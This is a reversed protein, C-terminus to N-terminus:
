AFNVVPDNVGDDLIGDQDDYVYYVRDIGTGKEMLKKSGRQLNTFNVTYTDFKQESGVGSYDQLLMFGTYQTPTESNFNYTNNTINFTATSNKNNSLRIPNNNPDIDNFVNDEINIVAGNEVNYFSIANNGLAGNFTNGSLTVNNVNPDSGISFEIANYINKNGANFTNNELVIDGSTKLSLGTRTTTNEVSSNKLTFPKTGTVKIAPTTDSSSTGSYSIKANDVVLEANSTTIPAAITAGNANITMDKDISLPTSVNETGAFTLTGGAPVANIADTVNEYDSM